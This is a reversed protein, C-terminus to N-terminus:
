VVFVESRHYDLYPEHEPKLGAIWSTRRISLQDWQWGDISDSLM